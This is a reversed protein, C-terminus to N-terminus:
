LEAFAHRFITDWNYQQGLALAHQRFVEYQGPQAIDAIKAALDAAEYRAILGAREAEIRKAIPPVDTLVVPLGCGLYTKVKGPDAYFTFSNANHPDYPAIAIDCEALTEIVESFDDMFGTLTFAEEMGAKRIEETLAAMYGGNGIITFLFTNGRKRLERALPVILRVGKSAAIEGMYAIRISGPTVGNSLHARARGTVPLALGGPSGRAHGPLSEGMSLGTADRDRPEGPPRARGTGRSAGGGNDPSAGPMHAGRNGYPVETWHVKEPDLRGEAFRAEIMRASLPWVRDAHHAAFRDIRRYIAELARNAFRVPTYDIMYYVVKRVVGLGRLVIGVCALLNDGAVLVDSGRAYRLGYILGLLADRAYALPEPKRFGVRSQASMEDVGAVARKVQVHSNRSNRFPFAVYVLRAVACKQLWERLEECAGTAEYHNYITVSAKKIEDITM